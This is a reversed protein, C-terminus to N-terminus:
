EFEGLAAAIQRRHSLDHDAWQRVLDAISLPGRLSHIGFRVWEGRGLAALRALLRRRIPVWAALVRAPDQERDRRERAWPRVDVDPIEPRTEHLLRELREVHVDQDVDRLHCLVELASWGGREPVATWREPANRELRDAIWDPTEALAALLQGWEVYTMPGPARATFGTDAGPLPHSQAFGRALYSRSLEVYHATGNLISERHAPSVPGVIRAPAGVALSGPAIVQGERVLAGAGILSGRGVRAGSLVIAGMGILCEDEIVCGHVIARHGITVRAGIVAPQDEDVHVVSNDQVNSDEGVEIPATDGRIVTNFWISSRAGLTVEGVVVAGPAVFATPDLRLRAPWQTTRDSV